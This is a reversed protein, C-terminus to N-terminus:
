CNRMLQGPSEHFSIFIAFSNIQLDVKQLPVTANQFTVMEFISNSFGTECAPLQNPTLDPCTQLNLLPFDINFASVPLLIHFPAPTQWTEPVCTGRDWHTHTPQLSERRSGLPLKEFSFPFATRRCWGLSPPMTGHGAVPSWILSVRCSAFSACITSITLLLSLVHVM